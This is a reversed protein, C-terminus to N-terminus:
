RPTGGSADAPAPQTWIEVRAAPRAFRRAAGHLSAATLAAYHDVIDSLAREAAGDTSARSELLFLWTDDDREAEAMGQANTERLRAVEADSVPESVIRELERRVHALM